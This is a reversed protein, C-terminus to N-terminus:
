NELQDCLQGQCKEVECIDQTWSRIQTKMSDLNKQAIEVENNMNVIKEKMYIIVDDCRNYEKKISNASRKRFLREGLEYAARVNNNIEFSM